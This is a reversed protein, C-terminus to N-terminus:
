VFLKHVTYFHIKTDHTNTCCSATSMWLIGTMFSMRAASMRASSMRASSMRASSMRATSLRAGARLSARPDWSTPSGDMTPSGDELSGESDDNESCRALALRSKSGGGGLAGGTGALAALSQSFSAFSGCTAHLLNCNTSRRVPLERLLQSGRRVMSLKRGLTKPLKKRAHGFKEHEDFYWLLRLRERGRNKTRAEAPFPLIRDHLEQPDNSSSKITDLERLQRYLRRVRRNTAASRHRLVEELEAPAAGEGRASPSESSSSGGGAVDGSFTQREVQREGGSEASSQQESISTYVAAHTLHWCRRREGGPGLWSVLKRGHNQLNNGGGAGGQFNRHFRRQAQRPHLQFFFNSSSAGSGAGAVGTRGGGASGLGGRRALSNNLMAELRERRNGAVVDDHFGHFLDSYLPNSPRPSHDRGEGHLAVDAHDEDEPSPRPGRPHRVHSSSPKGVPSCGASAPDAPLVAHEHVSRPSLQEHASRPSLLTELISHRKTLIRSASLRGLLPQQSLSPTSIIRAPPVTISNVLPPRPVDHEDRETPAPTM